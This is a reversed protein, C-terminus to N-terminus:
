HFTKTSFTPQRLPAHAQPQQRQQPYESAPMLIEPAWLLHKPPGVEMTKQSWVITRRLEHRSWQWNGLLLDISCLVM